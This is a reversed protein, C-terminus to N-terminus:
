LQIRDEESPYPHNMHDKLWEMLIRTITSSYNSRTTIKDKKSSTMTMMISKDPKLDTPNNSNEKSEESNRKNKSDIQTSIDM